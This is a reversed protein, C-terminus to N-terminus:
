KGYFRFIINKKHFDKGVHPSFKKELINRIINMRHHKNTLVRQIDQTINLYKSLYELAGKPCLQIVEEICGLLENILLSNCPVLIM